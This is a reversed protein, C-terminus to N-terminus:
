EWKIKVGKEGQYAKAIVAVDLGEAYLDILLEAADAEAVSILLGGSTQPDYMLDYLTQDRQGSESVFKQYNDRNKYAGAPLLGSEAFERVGEFIPIEPADIEIQLSSNESMELLHGILGFGTVDTCANIQYQEFFKLATNNLTLMSKVAPNSQDGSTFGGKIAAVMVGTGLPKTLLILDGEKIGSNSLLNDPHVTGTVSLGYKPEEDVVTHGGCLSAGAEKVKDAGGQLIQSLIEEELCSPFGVINMALIPQGGMAYVDSLANAAAIQGFLYPDDVIPTFFDLTQILALEESLSYVAADDAKDLGILLKEPDAPFNVRRLVQALARPGM